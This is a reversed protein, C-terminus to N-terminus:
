DDRFLGSFGDRQIPTASTNCILIQGFDEDDLCVFQIQFSRDDQLKLVLESRTQEVIHHGHGMREIEAVGKECKLNFRGLYQHKRTPSAGRRPSTM